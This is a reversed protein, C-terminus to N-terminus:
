STARMAAIYACGRLCSTSVSLIPSDPRDWSCRNTPSPRRFHFPFQSQHNWQLEARGICMGWVGWRANAWRRGTDRGYGATWALWWSSSRRWIGLNRRCPWSMKSTRLLDGSSCGGFCRTMGGAGPWSSTTGFPIIWSGAPARICPCSRPPRMAVGSWIAPHHRTRWFRQPAVRESLLNVVFAINVRHSPYILPQLNFVLSCQLLFIPVSVQRVLTGSWSLCMPSRHHLPLRHLSQGRHRWPHPLRITSWGDGLSCPRWAPMLGLNELPAPRATGWCGETLRWCTAFQMKTQRTWVPWLTRNPNPKELIRFRAFRLPSILGFIM